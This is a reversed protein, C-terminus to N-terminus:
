TIKNHRLLQLSSYQKWRLVYMTENIAATTYPPIIIAFISHM